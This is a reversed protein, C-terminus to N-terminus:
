VMRRLRGISALFASGIVFMVAIMAAFAIGDGAAVGIPTFLAGCVVTGIALAVQQVTTYIGGSLGAASVPVARLVTQLVPAFMMAQGVGLVVLAPQLALLSGTNWSTLVIVGIAVLAVLQTVAGISMTLVGFRAILRGISVSTLAFAIAYPGLALGATLPGVGLGNQVALAYAYLLVGYGGMFLAGMTLGLRLAPLRLVSPPLLPVRGAREIAAQHRWLAFLIVPAAVLMVITWVPWGLTPGLSLPLIVALIGLALGVTGIVDADAPQDSRTRPAALSTVAAIAAIAACVLFIARWGLGFLNAGLLIGGVVQGGAAAAGVVAGFITVARARRVGETSAQITALVQPAMLAATAGQVARLVILWVIDPAFATAVSALMFAASGITFLGRRGVRDGLRGGIILLAALAAGYAAVVLELEAPSAHLDRQIMPLAVSAANFAFTGLFVGVYLGFLRVLRVPAATALSTESDGYRAAPVSGTDLIDSTM